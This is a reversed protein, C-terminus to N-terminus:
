KFVADCNVNLINNYNKKNNYMKNNVNKYNKIIKNKIENILM